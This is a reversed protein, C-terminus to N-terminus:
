HSTRRKQKPDDVEDHSSNDKSSNGSTATNIGIMDDFYWMGHGIGVVASREHAIMRAHEDYISKLEKPRQNPSNQSEAMEKDHKLVADLLPDGQGPVVEINTNNTSM